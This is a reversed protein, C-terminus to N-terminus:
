IQIDVLVWRDGPLHKLEVYWHTRLMAGFSNEADVYSRIAYKCDGRYSVKTGGNFISPFKATRPAKLSQKVLEKAYVEAAAEAGKSQCETREWDVKEKESKYHALKELYRRDDPSLAALEQYIRFNTEVDSAPVTRVEADLDAIRVTREQEKKEVEDSRRKAEIAHADPDLAESEAFWRDPDASKLEALYEDPAIKKAEQLWRDRDMTKLEALFTYPDSSKLGELRQEEKDHQIQGVASLSSALFLAAFFATVKGPLGFSAIADPLQFTKFISILAYLLAIGLIVTAAHTSISAVIAAAFPVGLVWGFIRLTQRGVVNTDIKM